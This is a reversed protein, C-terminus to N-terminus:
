KRPWTLTFGYDDIGAEPDRIAVRVTYDNSKSPQEVIRVDGRGITNELMVPIERKPLAHSYKYHERMAAMGKKAASECKKERCSVWVEEDVRGTWTVRDLNTEFSGRATEWYLAISYHSAGDQPDDIRISATYDNEIRPQAVIQVAGRSERVAMRIDQRSDPLPSIFNYHANQAPDGEILIHRGKLNIITSKDVDGEWTFQQAHAISAIAVPLLLWKM